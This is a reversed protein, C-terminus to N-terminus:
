DWVVIKLTIPINNYANVRIVSIVNEASSTPSQGISQVLQGNVTVPSSVNVLYNHRVTLLGKARQYNNLTLDGFQSLKTSNIKGDSLLGIRIVNNETWGVPTGESMLSDGILTSEYRIEDLPSENKYQYNLTYFYLVTIATIFVASALMADFGWAQGRKRWM